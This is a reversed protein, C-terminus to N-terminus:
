EEEDSYRIKDLEIMKQMAKILINHEPEFGCQSGAGSMPYYSKRLIDVARTMMFMNVADEISLIKESILKQIKIESSTEGFQSSIYNLANAVPQQYSSDAGYRSKIYNDIKSNIVSCSMSQIFLEMMRKTQELTRKDDLEELECLEKEVDVYNNCFDKVGEIIELKTWIKKKPYTQTISSTLEDFVVRSVMFNSITRTTSNNYSHPACVHWINGHISDDLNKSDQFPNKVHRYRNSEQNVCVLQDKFYNSLFDYKEQQGDHDDQWGYDNYTGYFPIPILDWAHNSYCAQSKTSYITSMIIFNVTEDGVILPFQSIGCTGNWCGM